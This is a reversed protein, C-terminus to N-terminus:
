VLCLGGCRLISYCIPRVNAVRGNEKTVLFHTFRIDFSTILKMGYRYLTLATVGYRILAYCKFSVPHAKEDLVIIIDGPELGPEQFLFLILCGSGYKGDRDRICTFFPVLDWVRIRLM